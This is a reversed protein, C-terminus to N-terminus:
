HSKFIVNFSECLRQADMCATLKVFVSRSYMKYSKKFGVQFCVKRAIGGRGWICLIALHSLSVADIFVGFCSSSM